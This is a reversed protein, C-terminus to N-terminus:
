KRQEVYTKRSNLRVDFFTPQWRQLIDMIHEQTRIENDSAIHLVPIGAESLSRGILKSRHCEEPKMESCMLCVRPDQESARKLRAIGRSYSDTSSIKQYDAKGDTYCTPDDPTGGLLDGMYAYRIGANSLGKRLPDRCFDPRFKSYPRSRIDILYSIRHKRLLALFDALERTGYGITYIAKLM